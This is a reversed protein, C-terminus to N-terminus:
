SLSIEFMNKKKQRIVTLYLFIDPKVRIHQGKNPVQLWQGAATPQTPTLHSSQSGGDAQSGHERQYATLMQLHHLQCKFVNALMCEQAFVWVHKIM